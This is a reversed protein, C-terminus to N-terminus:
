AIALERGYVRQSFIKDYEDFTTKIYSAGTQAAIAEAEADELPKCMDTFQITVMGARLGARVGTASDELVLCHHKQLGPFKLACRQFSMNYLAPDPKAPGDDLTLLGMKDRPYGTHVLHPTAVRDPSNTVACVDKQNELFWEVTKLVPQHARVLPINEVYRDIRAAEFIKGDEFLRAFPPHWECIKYFVAPDGIGGLHDWHEDTLEYGDDRAMDNIVKRIIPESNAATGDIDTKLAKFTDIAQAVEILTNFKM